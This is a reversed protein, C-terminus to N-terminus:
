LKSIVNQQFQDLGARLGDPDFALPPLLLRSVGLDEYKKVTDVDMAGGTTVEIKDGDRGADAAAKHM